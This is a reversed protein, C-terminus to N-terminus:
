RSRQTIIYAGPRLDPRPTLRVPSGIDRRLTDLAGTIDIAAAVEKEVEVEYGFPAHRHGEARRIHRCVRVAVTEPSEM